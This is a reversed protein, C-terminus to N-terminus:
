CGQFPCLGCEAQSEIMRANLFYSNRKLRLKGKDHFGTCCKQAREMWTLALVQSDAHGGVVSFRERKFIEVAHM